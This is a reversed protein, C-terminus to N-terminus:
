RLGRKLYKMAKALEDGDVGTLRAALEVVTPKIHRQSRRFDHRFLDRLRDAVKVGRALREQHVAQQRQLLTHGRGHTPPECICDEAGPLLKRLPELNGGLAQQRAASVDLRHFVDRWFRSEARRAERDSPSEEGKRRPPAKPASSVRWRLGHLMTEYEPTDRDEDDFRNYIYALWQDEDTCNWNPRKTTVPAASVDAHRQQRSRKFIKLDGLEAPIALVEDRSRAADDVAALRPLTIPPKPRRGDQDLLRSIKKV